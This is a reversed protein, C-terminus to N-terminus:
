LARHTRNYVNWGYQLGVPFLVRQKNTQLTRSIRGGYEDWIWVDPQETMTQCMEKLYRDCVEPTIVPLGKQQSYFRDPHLAVWEKVDKEEQKLLPPTPEKVKPVNMKRWTSYFNSVLKQRPIVDSCAVDHETWWVQKPDPKPADHDLQIPPTHHLRDREDRMIGWTVEVNQRIRNRLQPAPTVLLADHYDFDLKGTSEEAERQVAAEDVESESEEESSSNYQGGYTHEGGSESSSVLHPPQEDESSGLTVPDEKVPTVQIRVDDSARTKTTPKQNRLEQVRQTLQEQLLKFKSEPDDDTMPLNWEAYSQQRHSTSKPTKSHDKCFHETHPQDINHRCSNMCSRFMCPEPCALTAKLRALRKTATSAFVKNIHDDIEYRDTKEEQVDTKM